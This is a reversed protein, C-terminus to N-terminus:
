NSNQNPWEQCHIYGEVSNSITIAMEENQPSSLKKSVSGTDTIWATVQSTPTSPVINKQTREWGVHGPQNGQSPVKGTQLEQAGERRLSWRLSFDLDKLSLSMITFSHPGRSYERRQKGLRLFIFMRKIKIEKQQYNLHFWNFCKKTSTIYKHVKILTIFSIFYIKGKKHVRTAGEIVKKAVAKPHWDRHEHQLQSNKDEM